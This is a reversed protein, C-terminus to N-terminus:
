FAGAPKLRQSGVRSGCFVARIAGGLRRRVKWFPALLIKSCGYFGYFPSFFFFVYAGMKRVTRLRVLLDERVVGYASYGECRPILTPSFFIYLFLFLCVGVPIQRSAFYFLVCSFPTPCWRPLIVPGTMDQGPLKELSNRKM